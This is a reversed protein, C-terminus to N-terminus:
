RFNTWNFSQTDVPRPSRVTNPVRNTTRRNISQVNNTQPHNVVPVNNTRSLGNTLGSLNWVAANNAEARARAKTTMMKQQEPSPPNRSDLWARYKPHIKGIGYAAAYGAALALAYDRIRFTDVKSPTRANMRKSVNQGIQTKAAVGKFKDWAKGVRYTTNRPVSPTGIFTGNVRELTAPTYSGRTVPYGAANVVGKGVNKGVGVLGDATGRLAANVASNGVTGGLHNYVKANQFTKALIDSLAMGTVPGYTLGWEARRLWDPKPDKQLGSTVEVNGPNPGTAQKTFYELVDSM